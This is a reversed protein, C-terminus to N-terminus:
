STQSIGAVLAQADTAKIQTPQALNQLNTEAVSSMASLKACTILASRDDDRSVVHLLLRYQTSSIYYDYPDCIKGNADSMETYM